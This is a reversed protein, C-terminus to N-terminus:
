LHDECATINCTHYKIDSYKLKTCPLPETSLSNGCLDCSWLRFTLVWIYYPAIHLMQLGLTTGLLHFTSIPYHGLCKCSVVQHIHHICHSVPVKDWVLFFTLVSMPSQEECVAQKFCECVPTNHIYWYSFLCYCLFM